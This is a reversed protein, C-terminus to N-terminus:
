LLVNSLSETCIATYLWSLSATAAADAGAAINCHAQVDRGTPAISPDLTNYSILYIQATNFIFTAMSVYMSGRITLPSSSTVRCSGRALVLWVAVAASCGLGHLQRPVRSHSLRPDCLCVAGKVPCGVHPSFIESTPRRLLRMRLLQRVRELARLNHPTFGCKPKLM